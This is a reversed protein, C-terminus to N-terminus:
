TLQFGSLQSVHNMIGYSCALRMRYCYPYSVKWLSLCRTMMILSCQIADGYRVSSHIKLSKEKSLPIYCLTTIITGVGYSISKYSLKINICWNNDRWQRTHWLHAVQNRQLIISYRSIFSCYISISSILMLQCIKINYIELPRRTGCRLHSLYWWMIKM